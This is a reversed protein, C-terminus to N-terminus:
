PAALCRLKVTDRDVTGGSTETRGRIVRRGVGSPKVTVTQEVLATCTPTAFPTFAFENQKTGGQVGGIAVLAAALAQGNAAQEPDNSTPKPANLKYQAVDTPTCSPLSADTQNFCIAVRFTCVGDATRDADCDPNGDTCVQNRNVLGRNDVFPSNTPNMIPVESVCDTTQAGGGPVAPPTYGGALADPYVVAFTGFQTVGTATITNTGASV